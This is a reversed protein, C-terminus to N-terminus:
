RNTSNGSIPSPSATARVRLQVGLLGPQVEFNLRLRRRLVVLERPSNGPAKVRTTFEADNRIAKGDYSVLVDGAALGAKQAEGSPKVEELYVEVAAPKGVQDFYTKDIIDNSESYKATWRAIGNPNLSPRGTEDLYSEEIENGRIDYSKVTSKGSLDFM